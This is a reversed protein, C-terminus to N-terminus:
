KLSVKDLSLDRQLPRVYVTAAHIGYSELYKPTYGEAPCPIIELIKSRTSGYPKLLQFGGEDKLKPFEKQLQAEFEGATCYKDTLFNPDILFLICFYWFLWKVHIWSSCLLLTM